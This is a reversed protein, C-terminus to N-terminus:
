RRNAEAQDLAQALAEFPLLVCEHRSKHAHVPAFAALEPWPMPAAGRGGALAAGLDRAVARLAAPTEGPAREGIAVAAAQCLLCGRVRHGVERVRGNALTLDLTVRDGCLPNDVTVSAQPAELRSAHRAKKALELIAQHYLEDKM